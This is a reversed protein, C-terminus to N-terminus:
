LPTPEGFTAQMNDMWTSLVPEAPLGLSALEKAIPHDGLTLEVGEGGFAIASGTGGQTFATAHPRGDRLTYSTMPMAPMEDTGGRPVTLTLVLEGDMHLTWRSSTDSQEVDIQEVSKPYGWIENGAVCTFEQDVPLHTIFTGDPGGGAPRVFLITGVERYSGLDNDRYDVLAVAVQARGTGSEIVEFGSPALAAAAGHDVEWIVTAASADRVQVPMTVTKGLIEHTTMGGDFRTTV